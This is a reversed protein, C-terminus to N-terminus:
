SPFIRLTFPAPGPLFDRIPNGGDSPLKIGGGTSGGPPSRFLARSGWTRLLFPYVQFRWVPALAKM